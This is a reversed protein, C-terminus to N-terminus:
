YPSMGIPTKFATRYARLTDDLKLSWDKKSANVM